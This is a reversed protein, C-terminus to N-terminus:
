LENGGPDQGERRPCAKSSPILADTHDLAGCWVRVVIGRSQATKVAGHIGWGLAPLGLRGFAGFETM